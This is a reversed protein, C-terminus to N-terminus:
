PSPFPHPHCFHNGHCPLFSQCLHTTMTAFPPPYKQICSLTSFQAVGANPVCFMHMCSLVNCTYVFKSGTRPSGRFELPPTFAVPSCSVRSCASTPNELGLHLMNYISCIYLYTHSNIKKKKRENASKIGRVKM